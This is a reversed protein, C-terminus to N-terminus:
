LIDRELHANYPGPERENRLTITATLKWPSPLEPLLMISDAGVCCDAESDFVFSPRGENKGAGAWGKLQM